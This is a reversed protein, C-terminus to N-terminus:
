FDNKNNNNQIQKRQQNGGEMKTTNQHRKTTQAMKPGLVFVKKFNLKSDHIFPRGRVIEVLPERKAWPQIFPSNEM